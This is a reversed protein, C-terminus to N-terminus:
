YSYEMVVHYVYKYDENSLMEKVFPLKIFRSDMSYDAKTSFGFLCNKIYFTDEYKLQLNEQILDMARFSKNEQSEMFLFLKLYDQYSLELVTKTEKIQDAKSKILVKNLYFIEHLGIQIEVSKKILPLAKGQLLASADVLAEAFAWVTLVIMKTIEVLAPLGTFGVFGIALARAEENSKKDSLLTIMNMVTRILLLRTLVAKLNEYDTSKGMIIYELEYDLAKIEEQLEDISYSGFHDFLYEQLLLFKAAGEVGSGATEKLDFGKSFDNMLESFLSGGGALDLNSVSSSIDEPEEGPEIKHVTSPLEKGSLKKDSLQNKDEILLGMIGEELISRIGSFFSDSEVPKELTSYDFQLKDHSYATLLSRIHTLATEVDKWSEKETTVTLRTDAKIAILIAENANLTARMGIFDYQTISDSQNGGGKYKELQALDDLLGQYFEEKLQEKNEALYTEYNEIKLAAEEQLPILEDIIEQAAKIAPQIGEVLNNLDKMNNNLTTILGKEIQKYTDFRDIAAAISEKLASLEEPDKISSQDISLLSQYAAEAEEKKAANSNLSNIAEQAQDIKPNPNSYHGMLSSYVLDNQIGLNAKTIPLTIIKKVFYNQIAIKGDRNVKVGKENITIGDILRMLNLIREDIEYLSEETEQKEELVAQAKETEQTDLLKPLFGEIGGSIEKYKMYSVAQNVFLEGNFDTLTNTKNIAANDTNIGYLNFLQYPNGGSDKLDKGPNFTYEMYNRLKAAIVDTNLNDTGYSGELGFLHYEELLPRYYESLVSDMATQLAREAYVKAGNVRAAEITTMTIALILLLVLSLFVTISGEKQKCM